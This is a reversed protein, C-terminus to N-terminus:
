LTETYNPKNANQRAIHPDEIEKKNRTPGFSFPRLHGIKVNESKLVKPYRSRIYMVQCFELFM